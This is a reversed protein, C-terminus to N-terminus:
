ELISTDSEIDSLASRLEEVHEPFLAVEVHNGEGDEFALKVRKDGFARATASDVDFLKVTTSKSPPGVNKVAGDKVELLFPDLELTIMDGISHDHIYERPVM